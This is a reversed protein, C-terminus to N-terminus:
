AKADLGTLATDLATYDALLKKYLPEWQPRTDKLLKRVAGAMTQYNIEKDTM